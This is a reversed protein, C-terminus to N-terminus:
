LWIIFTMVCWGQIDTQLPEAVALNQRRSTEASCSFSIEPVGTEDGSDSDESLKQLTRVYVAGQGTIRMLSDCTLTSNSSLNPRVLSGYSAQILVFNLILLILAVM